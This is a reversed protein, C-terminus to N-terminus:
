SLALRSLFLVRCGRLSLKSLRKRMNRSGDGDDGFRATIREPPLGYNDLVSFNDSAASDQSEPCVPRQLWGHLMELDSGRDNIQCDQNEAADRAAANGSGRRPRPVGGRHGNSM